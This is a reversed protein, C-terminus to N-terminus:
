IVQGHADVPAVLLQLWCCLVCLFFVRCFTDCSTQPYEPPQEDDVLVCLASALACQQQYKHKGFPGFPDYECVACSALPVLYTRVCVCISSLKFSTNIRTAHAFNIRVTAAFAFRVSSAAFLILVSVLIDLLCAVCCSCCCCFSCVAATQKRVFNQTHTRAHTM